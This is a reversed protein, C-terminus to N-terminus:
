HEKGTPTSILLSEINSTFSGYLVDARNGINDSYVSFRIPAKKDGDCLRLYNVSMKEFEPSIGQKRETTAVM